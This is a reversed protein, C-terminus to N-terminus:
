RGCSRVALEARAIMWQGARRQMAYRGSWTRCGFQRDHTVLSIVGVTASSGHDTLLRGDFSASRVREERESAVFQAQTAGAAGATLYRYARAFDHEDIAEWYGEVAALPGSAPTPQSRSRPAQSHGRGSSGAGRATFSGGTQVTTTQNNVLDLVAVSGESVEVLSSECEDVTLWRTGEVTTSVYRGRTGFSGGTDHAWLRRVPTSKGAVRATSAAKCGSLPQSLVFVTEYPASAEQQIVFEGEYLEASEEAPSAGSAVIVTVTGSLADVETGVPVLTQQALRTARSHGPLRYTVTGASPTLVVSRALEPRLTSGSAPPAVEWTGAQEEEGVAATYTGSIEGGEKVEGVFTESTVGAPNEGPAAVTFEIAGDAYTGAFTGSGYLPPQLSVEGTVAGEASVQVNELSLPATLERTSNRISGQYSSVLSPASPTSGEGSDPTETGTSTDGFAGEGGSDGSAGCDELGLGQVLREGERDLHTFEHGITTLRRADRHELAARASPLLAAFSHEVNVLQDWERRSFAPQGLTRLSSVFGRVLPEILKVGEIAQELKDGHPHFGSLASGLRSVLRGCAANVRAHFAPPLGSSASRAAAPDRLPAASVTSASTLAFALVAATALAAVLPRARSSIKWGEAHLASGFATGSSTNM